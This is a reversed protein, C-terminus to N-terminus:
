SVSCQFLLSTAQSLGRALPSPLVSPENFFRRSHARWVKMRILPLPTDASTRLKFNSCRHKQLRNHLSFRKYHGWVMFAPLFEALAEFARLSTIKSRVM